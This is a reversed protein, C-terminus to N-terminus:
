FSRIAVLNSWPFLVRVCVCVVVFGSFSTNSDVVLNYNQLFM